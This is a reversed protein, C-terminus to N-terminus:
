HAQFNWPHWTITPNGQTDHIGLAQLCVLAASQHAFKKSCVRYVYLSFVKTHHIPVKSLFSTSETLSRKVSKNWIQRETFALQFISFFFFKRWFIVLPHCYAKVRPTAIQSLKLVSRGFGTFALILPCHCRHPNCTTHVLQVASLSPLSM